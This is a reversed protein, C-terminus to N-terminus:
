GGINCQDGTQLLQTIFYGINTGVIPDFLFQDSIEINGIITDCGALESAVQINFVQSVRETDDLTKRLGSIM